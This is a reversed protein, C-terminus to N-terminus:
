TKIQTLLANELRTQLEEKKGSSKINLKKLLDKLVKITIKGNNKLVTYEEVVEQNVEEVIEEVVEQGIEEVVEQGIEQNSNNPLEFIIKDHYMIIYWNNYELCEETEDTKKEVIHKHYTFYINPIGKQYETIDLPDDIFIPKYQINETNFMNTIDDFSTEVSDLNKNIIKNKYYKYEICNLCDIIDYLCGIKYISFNNQHLDITTFDFKSHKTKIINQEPLKIIDVKRKKFDCYRNLFSINTECESLDFSNDYVDKFLQTEVCEFGAVEMSQLLSNYNIIWENSGEGLINNGNLTIKLSNGYIKTNDIHIM